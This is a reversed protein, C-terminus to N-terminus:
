PRSGLTMKMKIRKGQRLVVLKVKDGPSKSTVLGGLAEGSGVNTGDFSLILDARELGASNAPSDERVSDVMVGESESLGLVDRTVQDLEEITIGMWAGGGGTAPAAERVQVRERRSRQEREEMARKEAEEVNRSEAAQDSERAGLRLAIVKERGDRLVKLKVRNGAGAGQVSSIFGDLSDFNRGDMGLVVDGAELGGREAALGPMVNSIRVGRDGEEINVGLFGPQGGGGGHSEEHADAEHSHAEGEDHADEHEEEIEFFQGSSVEDSRTGLEMAIHLEEDGRLVEVKARAGAGAEVVADRLGEASEIASGNFGVIRDGAQFGSRAAPSGDVVQGIRVGEDGDEEMVVGLYGPAGSSSGGSRSSIKGDALERRLEELRKRAVGEAEEQARKMAMESKRAVDARSASKGGSGEKHGLMAAIEQRFEALRADLLESVEELIEQKLNDNGRRARQADAPSSMFGSFLMGAVVTGLVAVTFRKM